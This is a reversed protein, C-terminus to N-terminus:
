APDAAGRERGSRHRFAPNHAPYENFMKVASEIGASVFGEVIYSVVPGEVPYGAEELTAMVLECAFAKKEAGTKSVFSEAEQVAEFIFEVAATVQPRHDAVWVIVSPIEGLLSQKKRLLGDRVAADVAARVEPTLTAWQHMSEWIWGFFEILRAWIPKTAVALRRLAAAFEAKPGSPRPERANWLGHQNTAQVIIDVSWDTVFDIVFPELYSPVEAISLRGSRLLYRIASKVQDKKLQGDGNPHGKETTQVLSSILDVWVLVSQEVEPGQQAITRLEAALQDSVGGSLAERLLRVMREVRVRVEETQPADDPPAEWPVFGFKM